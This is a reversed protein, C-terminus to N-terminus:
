AQRKKLTLADSIVEVADGALYLAFVKWFLSAWTDFATLRQEPTVLLLTALVFYVTILAILAGVAVRYQRWSWKEAFREAATKPPAPPTEDVFALVAERTLDIAFASQGGGTTGDRVAEAYADLCTEFDRRRNM